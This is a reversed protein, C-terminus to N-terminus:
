ESVNQPSELHSAVFDILQQPTFPKDLLHDPEIKEGNTAAPFGSMYAVRLGPCVKELRERLRTGDVRPMVVDTLVLEFRDPHEECMMLAEGANPATSVLYGHRELVKEVYARVAREDDVVLVEGTRPRMLDTTWSSTSEEFAGEAADAVPFYVRMETGVGLESEVEIAADHQQVISYVTSMGIGTGQEKTTFFPEFIKQRTQESM